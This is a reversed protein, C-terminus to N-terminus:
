LWAVGVLGVVLVPGVLVPGVLVALVPGLLVPPGLLVLGVSGASEAGSVGTGVPVPVAAGGRVIEGAM